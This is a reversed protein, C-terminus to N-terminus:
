LWGDKEISNHDVTVAYSVFLFGTQWDEFSNLQGKLGVDRGAEYYEDMQEEKWMDGVELTSLGHFLSM